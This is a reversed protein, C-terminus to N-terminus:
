GGMLSRLQGAKRAKVIAEPSMQALQAQTIQAPQSGNRAGGDATGNFRKGDSQAAALYPRETLLTTLATSIADVDVKGDDIFTDVQGALFARADEPNTFLRAAKAELKDLAREKLVSATAEVTAEDRAQKRIAEVDPPKEDTTTTSATQLAKVQAPTLGLSTWERLAAQADKRRQKEADLAKQGAPGLPKEEGDTATGAAADATEDTETEDEPAGTTRAATM